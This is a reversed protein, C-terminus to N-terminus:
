AIIDKGQTMGSVTKVACQNLKIATIIKVAKLKVLVIIGYGNEIYRKKHKKFCLLSVLLNEGKLAYDIVQHPTDRMVAELFWLFVESSIPFSKEKGKDTGSLM